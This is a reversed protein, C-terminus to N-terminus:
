AAEPREYWELNAGGFDIAASPLMFSSTVPSGSSCRFTCRQRKRRTDGGNTGRATTADPLLDSVTATRGVTTAAWRYLVVRLRGQLAAQRRVVLLRHRQERM